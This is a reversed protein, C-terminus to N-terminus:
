KRLAEAQEPSMWSPQSPWPQYTNLWKKRVGLCQYTVGEVQPALAMAQHCEVPREFAELREEATVDGVSILATLVWVFDM